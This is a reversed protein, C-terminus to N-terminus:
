KVEISERGKRRTVKWVGKTMTTNVVQFINIYKQIMIVMGLNCM